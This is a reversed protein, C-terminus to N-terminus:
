LWFLLGLHQCLYTVFVQSLLMWTRHASHAIRTQCPDANVCPNHACMSKCTQHKILGRDIILLCSRARSRVSLTRLPWVGEVIGRSRVNADKPCKARTTRLSHVIVHELYGKNMEQLDLKSFTSCLMDLTKDTSLASHSETSDLFPQSANFRTCGPSGM